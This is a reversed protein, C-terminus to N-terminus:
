YDVILEGEEMFLVRWEIGTVWEEMKKIRANAFAAEAELMRCLARLEKIAEFTEREMM